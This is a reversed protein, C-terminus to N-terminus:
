WSGNCEGECEDKSLQWLGEDTELDIAVVNRGAIAWYEGAIPYGSLQDGGVDSIIIHACDEWEAQLYVPCSEFNFLTSSFTHGATTTEVVDDVKMESLALVIPPEYMVWTSEDDGVNSGHIRVGETTDSSWELSWLIEGDVCSDDAAVCRKAYDVTYINITGDKESDRRMAAELKYTVATDSHIFEWTRLGDFPFLTSMPTGGYTYNDPPECAGLALPAIWLLYRFM